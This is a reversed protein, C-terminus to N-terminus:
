QRRGQPRMGKETAIQAVLQGDHPRCKGEDTCGLWAAQAKTHGCPMLDESAKKDAM